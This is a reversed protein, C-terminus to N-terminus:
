TLVYYPSPYYFLFTTSIECSNEFEFSCSQWVHFFYHRSPVPSESACSHYLSYSLPVFQTQFLPLENQRIFFSSFSLHYLNCSPIRFAQHLKLNGLPLRPCPISWERIPPSSYPAKVSIPFVSRYETEHDQSCERSPSESKFLELFIRYIVQISCYFSEISHHSKYAFSVM